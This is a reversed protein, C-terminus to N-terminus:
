RVVAAAQKEEKSNRSIDKKKDCIGELFSRFATIAKLIDKAKAPLIREAGTFERMDYDSTFTYGRAYRRELMSLTISTPSTKKSGGAIMNLKPMMVLIAQM